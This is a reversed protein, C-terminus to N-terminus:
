RVGLVFRLLADVRVQTSRKIRGLAGPEFAERPLTHLNAMLAVMPEEGGVEEASLPVATPSGEYIEGAGDIPAVILLDRALNLRDDSLVLVRQSAGQAPARLALVDGRRAM